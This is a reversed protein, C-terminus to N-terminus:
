NTVWPGSVDVATRSLRPVAHCPIRPNLLLVLSATSLALVVTTDPAFSALWDSVEVLALVDINTPNAQHKKQNSKKRVRKGKINDYLKTPVLLSCARRRKQVEASRATPTCDKPASCNEETEQFHHVAPSGVAALIGVVDALSDEAVPAVGALIGVVAVLIGEAVLVPNVAEPDTDVQTCGGAAEYRGTRGEHDAAALVYAPGAELASGTPVPLVPAVAVGAFPGAAAEQHRGVAALVLNGVAVLVPVAAAAAVLVPVAAAAAVLVPVVAAAVVV